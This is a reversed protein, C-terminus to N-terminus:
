KCAAAFVLDKYAQQAREDGAVDGPALVNNTLV